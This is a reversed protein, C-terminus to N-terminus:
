WIQFPEVLKGVSTNGEIKLKIHGKVKARACLNCRAINVRYSSLFFAFNGFWVSIVQTPWKESPALTHKFIPITRSVSELHHGILSFHRTGNREFHRLKTFLLWFQVLNSACPSWPHGKSKHYKSRPTVDCSRKTVKVTKWFSQRLHVNACFSNTKSHHLKPFDYSLTKVRPTEIKLEAHGKVKACHWRVLVREHREPM